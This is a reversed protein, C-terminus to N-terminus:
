QIVTALTETHGCVSLAQGSIQAGLDSCAFVVMAAIDEATVFSRLSVQNTYGERVAEPSVGRAEAEAAIVRDMRPGTVSGPCVANVRIGYPGLEMALSKTLGILAWKAAAYPTRLPYGFLGATSSINVIAGSGAAKMPPVAQRLCLFGGHVNVRFTEEWGALDMSEIPGTPGAIGANNVLVDLRGDFRALTAEFFHEVSAEDTVDAQSAAIGEAPRQMEAVREPDLDCVQVLAGEAAFAEAIARGIGAGGATVIVHKGRLGNM